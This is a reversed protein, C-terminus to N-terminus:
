PSIIPDSVVIEGNQSSIMLYGSDTGSIYHNIGTTEDILDLKVETGGMYDLSAIASISSSITSADFGPDNISFFHCCIGRLHFYGYETQYRHTAFLRKCIILRM